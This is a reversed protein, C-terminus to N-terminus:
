KQIGKSGPGFKVRLELNEADPCEAWCVTNGTDLDVECVIQPKSGDCCAGRSADELKWNISKDGSLFHDQPGKPGDPDNPDPVCGYLKLAEKVKEFLEPAAQEFAGGKSLPELRVTGEHFAVSARYTEKTKNM